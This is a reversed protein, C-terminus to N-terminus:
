EQLTPCWAGCNDNPDGQLGWLVPARMGNSLPPRLSWGRSQAGKGSRSLQCCPQLEQWVWSHGLRAGAVDVQRQPRLASMVAKDRGGQVPLPGPFNATM